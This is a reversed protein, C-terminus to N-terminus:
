NPSSSSINIQYYILYHMDIMMHHHIDCHSFSLQLLLNRPTPFDINFLCSLFLFLIIILDYNKIALSIILLISIDILLSDSVTWQQIKKSLKNRLCLPIKWQLLDLM